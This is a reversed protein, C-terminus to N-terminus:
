KHSNTIIEQYFELQTIEILDRPNVGTCGVSYELTFYIPFDDDSYQYEKLRDGQYRKYIRNSVFGTDRVEIVKYFIEIKNEYLFKYYHNKKIVDKYQAIFEEKLLTNLKTLRECLETDQDNYKQRLNTRITNLEKIQRELEKIM